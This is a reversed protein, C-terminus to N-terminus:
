DQIMREHGYPCTGRQEEFWSPDDDDFVLWTQWHHGCYSAACTPCWFPAFERDAEFLAAASQGDLAALIAPVAQDVVEGGITLSLPGAEVGIRAFEVGAPQHRPSGAKPAPIGGPALWVLAAIGECLRCSFTAQV